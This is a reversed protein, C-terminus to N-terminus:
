PTVLEAGETCYVCVDLVIMGGDEFGATLTQAFAQGAKIERVCVPCCMGHPYDADTVILYTTTLM